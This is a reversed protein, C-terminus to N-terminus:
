RKLIFVHELARAENGADRCLLDVTEQIVEEPFALEFSGHWTEPGTQAVRIVLTDQFQCYL